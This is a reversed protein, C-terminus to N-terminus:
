RKKDNIRRNISGLTNKMETQEKSSRARNFM